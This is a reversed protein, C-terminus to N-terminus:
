GFDPEQPLLELSLNDLAQHLAKGSKKAPSEEAAAPMENLIEKPDIGHHVSNIRNLQDTRLECFLYVSILLPFSNMVYASGLIRMSALVEQHNKENQESIKELHSALVRNQATLLDYEHEAM